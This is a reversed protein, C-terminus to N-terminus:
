TVKLISHLVKQIISNDMALVEQDLLNDGNIMEKLYKFEITLVIMLMFITKWTVQLLFALQFHGNVSGRSGITDKYQFMPEQSRSSISTSLSLHKKKEQLQNLKTKQYVLELEVVVKTMNLRNEPESMIYQKYIEYLYDCGADLFDNASYGAFEPKKRCVVEALLVSFSYIDAKRGYGTIDGRLIDSAMYSFTGVDTNSERGAVSLGFDTLKVDGLM